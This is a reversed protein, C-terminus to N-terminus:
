INQIEVFFYLFVNGNKKQSVLIFKNLFNINKNVIINKNEFSKINKFKTYRNKQFDRM